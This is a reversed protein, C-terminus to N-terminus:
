SMWDSSNHPAAGQIMRTLHIKKFGLVSWKHLVYVAVFSEEHSLLSHSRGRPPSIDNDEGKLTLRASLHSLSFSVM